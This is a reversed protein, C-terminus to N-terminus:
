SKQWIEFRYSLDHEEKQPLIDTKQWKSLDLPPFFADAEFSKEVVTLYIKNLFPLSLRYIEEGGICFIEEADFGEAIKYADDISHVIYHGEPAEYDKQRTVIIHTRGPLPKGLFDIISDFTKRGLIVPKGKTVSKFYKLDEPIHWLLKNDKGIGGNFDTAVIASFTKQGM